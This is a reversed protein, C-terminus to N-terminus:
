EQTLELATITVRAMAFRIDFTTHNAVTHIHKIAATVKTTGSVRFCYYRLLITVTVIM